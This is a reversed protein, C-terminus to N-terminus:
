GNNKVILTEFLNSTAHLVTHIKRKEELNKELCKWAYLKPLGSDFAM